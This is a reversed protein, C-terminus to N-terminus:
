LVGRRTWPWWVAHPQRQDFMRQVSQHGRMHDPLVFVREAVGVDVLGRSCQGHEGCWHLLVGHSRPHIFQVVPLHFDVACWGGFWCVCVRVTLGTCEMAFVVGAICVCARLGVSAQTLNRSTYSQFDFLASEFVSALSNYGRDTTRGVIVLPQARVSASTQTAMINIQLVDPTAVFTFYQWEGSRVLSGAVGCDCTLVALWFCPYLSMSFGCTCVRSCCVPACAGPKLNTVNTTNGNQLVPAPVDCYVGEWGLQCTCLAPGTPAVAATDNNSCFSLPDGHGSCADSSARPALVASCPGCLVCCVVCLVCCM